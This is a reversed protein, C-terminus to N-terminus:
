KGRPTNYYDFYYVNVFFIFSILCTNGLFVAGAM